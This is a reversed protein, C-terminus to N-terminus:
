KSILHGCMHQGPWYSSLCKDPPTCRIYGDFLYTAWSSRLRTGHKNLQSLYQKSTIPSTVSAKSTFYFRQVNNRSIFWSIIKTSTIARELVNEGCWIVKYRSYMDGTVKSDTQAYQNLSKSAKNLDASISSHELWGHKFPPVHVSWTLLYVHVQWTPYM